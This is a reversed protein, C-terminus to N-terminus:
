SKKNCHQRIEQKLLCCSIKHLPKGEADYRLNDPQLIKNIVCCEPDLLVPQDFVGTKSLVFKEGKINRFAAHDILYQLGVIEAIIRFALREM